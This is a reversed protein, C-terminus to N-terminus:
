YMRKPNCKKATMSAVIGGIGGGVVLIDTREM